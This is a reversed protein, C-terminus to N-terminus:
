ARLPAAAPCPIPKARTACAAANCPPLARKASAGRPAHRSISIERPARRSSRTVPRYSARRPEARRAGASELAHQRAARGRDPEPPSSNGGRPRGGARRSPARCRRGRCSGARCRQRRSRRRSTASEPGRARAAREAEDLAEEAQERCLCKAATRVSCLIPTVGIWTYGKKGAPRICVRGGGPLAPEPGGVWSREAFCFRRSASSGSERRNQKAHLLEARGDGVVQVRVVM